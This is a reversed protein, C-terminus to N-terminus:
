VYVSVPVKSTEKTNTFLTKHESVKIVETHTIGSLLINLELNM